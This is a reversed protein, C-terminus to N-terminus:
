GTGRRSQFNEGLKGGLLGALFPVLGQALLRGPSLGGALMLGIAVAIAAAIAPEVVTRGASKAGVIFGGVAFALFNLVVALLLQGQGLEIDSPEVGAEVQPAVTGAVVLGLLIGAVINLAIMILVGIGVWKWDLSM